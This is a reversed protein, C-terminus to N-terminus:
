GILDKGGRSTVRGLGKRGPNFTIGRSVSPGNEHSFVHDLERRDHTTPEVPRRKLLESTTEGAAALIEKKPV